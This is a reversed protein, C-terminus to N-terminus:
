DLQILSRWVGLVPCRITVELRLGCIRVHIRVVCVCVGLTPSTLSRERRIQDGQFHPGRYCPSHLGGALNSHPSPLLCPWPRGRLTRQLLTQQQGTDKNFSAPKLRDSKPFLVEFLLLLFAKRVCSRLFTELLLFLCCLGGSSLHCGGPCLRDAMRSMEPTAPHSAAM